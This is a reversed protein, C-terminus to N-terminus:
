YKKRKIENFSEYIKMALKINPYKNHCCTFIVASESKGLTETLNRLSRHLWSGPHFEIDSLLIRDEVRKTLCLSLLHRLEFSIGSSSKLSKDKM